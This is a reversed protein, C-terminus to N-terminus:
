KKLNRRTIKKDLGVRLVQNIIQSFSVSKQSSSILDAQMKRLLDELDDALVITHRRSM